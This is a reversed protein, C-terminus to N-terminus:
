KEKENRKPLIMLVKLAQGCNQCFNINGVNNYSKGCSPCDIQLEFDPDTSPNYPRVKVPTLRASLKKLVRLEEVTGINQYRLLERKNEIAERRSEERLLEVTEEQQLQGYSKGEKVAKSSMRDLEKVAKKRSTM